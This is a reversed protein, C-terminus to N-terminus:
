QLKEEQNSPNNQHSTSSKNRKIFKFFRNFGFIV